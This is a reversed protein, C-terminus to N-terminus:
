RLDIEIPEWREMDPKLIWYWTGDAHEIRISGLSDLRERLRGLLKKFFGERDYLVHANFVMDLYVPQFTMAQSRRLEVVTVSPYGYLGEQRFRRDFARYEWSEEFRHHVDRSRRWPDDVEDGVVFLLDVDSKGPVFTGRASSGYLVISVLDDKFEEFLLRAYRRLPMRLWGYRIRDFEEENAWRGVEGKELDSIRMLLDLGEDTIAYLKDIKRVASLSELERLRRALTRVNSVVENLDKFRADGLSLRRLIEM